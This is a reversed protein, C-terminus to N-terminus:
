RAGTSGAGNANPGGFGGAAGQGGTAASGGAAGFGGNAGSQGLSGTGNSEAPTGSSTTPGGSVGQAGGGAVSAGGSTNSGAVGAARDSNGAGGAGGVAGNNRAGRGGGNGSDNAVTTVVKQGDKVPALSLTVVQEGAQLGDLIQINNGSSVGTKVPRTHAVGDADVVTVVQSRTKPDTKVAERPIQLAHPTRRTVFTVRAFMGPKLQGTPNDLTLRVTFQRSQPDAAPNVQTIKGTYTRGPLADFVASATQGLRVSNSIEEPISTTVYVQQLSEITLIPTGATVTTGPDAARMTVFGNLPSRLITNELQAQANRLQGQAATVTAQLARLNALYAPTQSRNAVALTVAARAQLVKQRAAEIDAKGKISVISAQEQTSQLQAQASGLQAQAGALQGKAVDVAGQQVSVQTRADDVDQAAVYGQKYLDLTRNLKVQANNLNAQASRVTAEANRIASRVNTVNGQAATVAANAAAVSAAYNQQQQAYDAQLSAQTARQQAIQSTVGVNTANTTLQAQALRGQAEAVNAQQQTVTAAVESPDIRALVEGQTVKAGERVQLYDVRGTLKAALRVNFPSEVNGVAEYTDVIDRASAPVVTVNAPANKRAAAAQNRQATEKKKAGLRWAILGGLLLIPILITIFKLTRKM